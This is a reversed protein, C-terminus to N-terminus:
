GNDTLDEIRDAPPLETFRVALITRRGEMIAKVVRHWGDMIWGSPSMIVPSQVNCQEARQMHTCFDLVSHLGWPDVDLDISALDVEFTPFDASLRILRPVSWHENKISCEGDILRPPKLNDKVIYHEM